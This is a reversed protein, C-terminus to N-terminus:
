CRGPNGDVATETEFGLKSLIFVLEKEHLCASSSEPVVKFPLPLIRIPDLPEPAESEDGTGISYVVISQPAISAFICRPTGDTPIRVTVKQWDADISITWGGPEGSDTMNAGTPATQADTSIRATMM